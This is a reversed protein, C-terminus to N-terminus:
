LDSPCGNGATPVQGEVYSTPGQCIQRTIFIGSNVQQPDEVTEPKVCLYPLTGSATTGYNSVTSCGCATMMNSVEGTPTAEGCSGCTLPCKRRVKKCKKAKKPCSSPVTCLGKGNWKQCKKAKKSDVCAGVLASTGLVALVLLVAHRGHLM